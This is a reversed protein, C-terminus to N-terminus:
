GFLYSVILVAALLVPLLVAALELVDCDHCITRLVPHSKM